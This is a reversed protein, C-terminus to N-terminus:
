VNTWAKATAGATNRVVSLKVYPMAAFRAFKDAANMSGLELWDASEDVKGHVKFVTTGSQAKVQVIFESAAAFVASEATESTTNIRVAM